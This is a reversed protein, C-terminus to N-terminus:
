TPLCLQSWVQPLRVILSAGPGDNSILEAKGGM